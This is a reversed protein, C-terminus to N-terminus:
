WEQLSVGEREMDEWCTIFNTIQHLVADLEAPPRGRYAHEMDFQEETLM